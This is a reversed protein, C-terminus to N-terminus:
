KQQFFRFFHPNGRVEMSKWHTKFPNGIPNWAIKLSMEIFFMLFHYPVTYKTYFCSHICWFSIVCTLLSYVLGLLRVLAASCHIKSSNEFTRKANGWTDVLGFWVTTTPAGGSRTKQTKDITSAGYVIQSIFRLQLVAAPDHKALPVRAM